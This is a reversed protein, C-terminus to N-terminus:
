LEAPRRGPAPDVSEADSTSAELHRVTTTLMEVQRIVWWGAVIGVMGLVLGTLLGATLALTPSAVTGLLAAVLVPGALGLAGGVLLLARLSPASRAAQTEAM